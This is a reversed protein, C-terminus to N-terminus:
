YWENVPKHDAVLIKYLENFIKSQNDTLKYTHEDIRLYGHENIDLIVNKPGLFMSLFKGDNRINNYGLVRTYKSQHLTELIRNIESPKKFDVEFSHAYADDKYTSFHINDIKNLNRESFVTDANIPIMYYSFTIAILVVGIIGFLLYKKRKSM